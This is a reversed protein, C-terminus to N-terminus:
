YTIKVGGLITRGPSRYGAVSQYQVDGLNAARLTLGIRPRNPDHNPIAFEGSLDVLTYAPLTVASTFPASNSFQRDDRTGVYTIVVDTNLNRIGSYGLRASGTLNPRRLLRQGQVLTATTATSFCRDLVKTELRTLALDGIFGHVPAHHMELEAGRASASASTDYNPQGPAGTGNYRILDVFRQDFYTMQVHIVDDLIGSGVGAEWSRTHEPKLDPNGVVFGTAFNESLSPERFATGVSGRVTTSGLLVYQAALRFTGFSGFQQNGDIRAGATATM